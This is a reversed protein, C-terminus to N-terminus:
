PSVSAGFGRGSPGRGGPLGGPSGGPLGGPPIPQGYTADPDPPDTVGTVPPLVSNGFVRTDCTAGNLTFGAPPGPRQGALGTLGVTVSKGPPLAAESTLRVDAGEQTFGAGETANVREGNPYGFGVTWPERVTRGTNVIMVRASFIRNGEPRVVYNVRCTAASTGGEHRTRVAWALVLATATAAVAVAVAAAAALKRRGRRRSRAQTTAELATGDPATGYLRPLGQTTSEIDPMVVQIGTADALVRAAEMASPRDSPAKALCRTVLDAVTPPLGDIAPLPDPPEYVHNAIMQTPTEAHWPLRDTLCRYLLLGLTYVDTAPLVMGGVLREPALYAPTGFVTGGPEEDDPSGALGAVGFDLVKAGAATLMVNTPKIDRHVVGREHAAALAAAVQACIQTARRWRMKGSRLRRSLLQGDLLEMVVYPAGDAPSEGYDHIATINPHSLRAIAKAEARIRDRSARDGALGLSLLKVAVDRGLVEDRARWVVAMGGSGIPELLRYRGGLREDATGSL